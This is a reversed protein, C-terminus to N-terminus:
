KVLASIAKFHPNKVNVTLKFLLSEYTTHIVGIQVLREIAMHSSLREQTDEVKIKM